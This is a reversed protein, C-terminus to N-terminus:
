RDDDVARWREWDRRDVPSAPYPSEVVTRLQPARGTLVLLTCALCADVAPDPNVFGPHLTEHHGCAACSVRVPDTGLVHRRCVDDPRYTV